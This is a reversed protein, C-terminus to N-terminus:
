RFEMEMEMRMGMGMAVRTSGSDVSNWAPMVRDDVDCSPSPDMEMLTSFWSILDVCNHTNRLWKTGPRVGKPCSSVRPHDANREHEVLVDAM